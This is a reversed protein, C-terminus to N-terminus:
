HPKRLVFEMQTGAVRALPPFALVASPLSFFGYKKSLDPFVQGRQFGAVELDCAKFLRRATAPTFEWIHFPICCSRWLWNRGLVRALTSEYRAEVSRIDPFTILALGGPALARSVMTLAARPDLTHELVDTMSILHYTNDPLPVTDLSGVRIPVNYHEAGWAASEANYEIGEADFGQEKLLKVFFGTSCGVDLSKGPLSVFLKLLQYYREYKRKFERESRGGPVRLDAHYAGSYMRDLDESTPRPDTRHLGCATCVALYWCKGISEVNHNREAETHGCLPCSSQVAAFGTPNM